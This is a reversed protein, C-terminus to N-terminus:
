SGPAASGRNGGYVVLPEDECLALTVDTYRFTARKADRDVGVFRFHSAFRRGLRPRYTTGDVTVAVREDRYDINEVTIKVPQPAGPTGTSDDGSPPVETVSAPDSPEESPFEESPFEESPFEESPDSGVDSGSSPNDGSDGTEGQGPDGSSDAPPNVVDDGSPGTSGPGTLDVSSAPEVVLPKFPDDGRDPAEVELPDERVAGPLPLVETPDAQAPDAQAPDAPAPDAPAAVPVPEPAPDGGSFLVLYAALGTVLAAALGALALLRRRDPGDEAPPDLGPPEASVPPGPTGPDGPTFGPFTPQTM